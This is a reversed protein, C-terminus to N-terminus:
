EDIGSWEDDIGTKVGNTKAGRKQGAKVKGGGTSKGPLGARKRAKSNEIAARRNNEKRREWSSVTTIGAVKGGSRRGEVGRIKLRKRDAKSVKPLADLLWKQLGNERVDEADSENDDRSGSPGEGNRRGHTSNAKAGAAQKESAAIVNAVGRVFPIDEKTYLTVAVGGERGARGTRGARHVYVAASGPVDYSVVGNLGTFDLGRALVDTSILVWVQGQRLRAVTKSRQSDPLNSHLVAIRSAGGAEPPIDYKLENHLAVARDITQTFVLFPPRLAPADSSSKNTTRSTGSAPHLLQRLALLKGAETATYIMKHTINPVATDKLGIVLRILPRSPVNYRAARLTLQKTIAAEINSAMTASWFSLQLTPHTCANLVAIAQKSFLPDLLVDAEDLVLASVTYLRRPKASGNSLYNLLRKPTTVLIDVHAMPGTNTDNSPQVSSELVASADEESSGADDSGESSVIDNGIEDGHGHVSSDELVPLRLGRGMGVVKVGTGQTLKRGENVIQRALERTPALVITELVGDGALGGELAEYTGERLDKRRKLARAVAPVLFSVTKGSGTPAVALFDVGQQLDLSKADTAKSLAKVPDLLLPLSGLQVETPMRFGQDRLNEVVRWPLGYAHLDDFWILPQPYIQRRDKAAVPAVKPKPFGHGNAKPSGDFMVTHKLRHSRLLNRCEDENILRIKKKPASEEGDDDPHVAARGNTALKEPAVPKLAFFDIEAEDVNQEINGSAQHGQEVVKSRKRKKGQKPQVEDHFLQPHTASGASPLRAFDAASGPGSGRAKQTGRSLLKLVDM